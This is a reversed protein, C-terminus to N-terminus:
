GRSRLKRGAAKGAQEDCWNNLWASQTSNKQHGKVHRTRIDVGSRSKVSRILKRVTRLCTSKSDKSWPWCLRIAADCDSVVLVGDTEPWEEVARKLAAYIAYAEASNSDAVWGPCCGSFKVRGKDSKLWFAYAATKTKFVYSADTYCTVWMMEELYGM